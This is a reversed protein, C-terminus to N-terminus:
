YCFSICFLSSSYTVSFSFAFCLLGSHVQAMLASHAPGAWSRMKKRGTRRPVIAGMPKDMDHIPWTNAVLGEGIDVLVNAFEELSVRARVDGRMLRKGVVRLRAVM